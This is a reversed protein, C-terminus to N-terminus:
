VHFLKFFVIIFKYLLYIRYSLFFTNFRFFYLCRCSLFLKYVNILTLPYPTINYSYYFVRSIFIAYM